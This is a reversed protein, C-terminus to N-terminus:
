VALLEIDPCCIREKVTIHGPSCWRNNVLVALGGGKRKGSETCDRDARVTQFGTISVNDDPIDQHLWTESFCMLSCQRYEKQSMALAALEDMKNALSRVNGMILTPLRPKYGKKELLRRRKARSKGTRQKTGGRCGRHTRRWLEEPINATRTDMGAPKLMMLQDRTYVFPGHQQAATCWSLSLLVKVAFFSVLVREVLMIRSPVAESLQELGAPHMGDHQLLYDDETDEVSNEEDDPLQVNARLATNHLLAEAVRCLASNAWMFADHTSGPWKAVIDTFLGQYDCVVQINLAQYGKRCLYVAENNSPRAIPVLTGDIVGIVQPIDAIAHFGQNVRAIDEPTKPFTIRKDLQLLVQTVATVARSISAKSLGFAMEWCRTSVVKLPPPYMAVSPRSAQQALLALKERRYAMTEEHHRENQERLAALEERIGRLISIKEGESKLLEKVANATSREAGVPRPIYTGSHLPLLIPLLAGLSLPNQPPLPCHLGSPRIAMGHLAWHQPARRRQVPFAGRTPVTSDVCFNIYDTICETLGDIDREM